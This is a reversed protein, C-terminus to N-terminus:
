TNSRLAGFGGFNAGPSGPVPRTIRGPPNQRVIPIEEDEDDPMIVVNDVIAPPAVPPKAPKSYKPKPKWATGPQRPEPYALPTTIVPYAVDIAIGRLPGEKGAHPGKLYRTRKETIRVIYDTHENIEEAAPGLIRKMTRDPMSGAPLGLSAVLDAFPVLLSLKRDGHGVVRDAMYDDSVMALLRLMLIVTVKNRAHQVLSWPLEVVADDAGVRMSAAVAAPVSWQQQRDGNRVIGARHVRIAGSFTEQWTLSPITTAEDIGAAKAKAETMRFVRDDEIKAKDRRSRALALRLGNDGLFLYEGDLAPDRQAALWGVTLSYSLDRATVSGDVTFTGAFEAPLSLRDPILHVTM